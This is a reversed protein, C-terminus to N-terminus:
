GSVRVLRVADACTQNEGTIGGLSRLTVTASTAFSWTGLLNWKGGDQRQNVNVTSTGAAGTIDVPVQSRRKSNQTWWLYVEYSGAQPLAPQFTYSKDPKDTYLSGAGAHRGFERKARV